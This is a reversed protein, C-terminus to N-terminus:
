PTYGDDTARVFIVTQPNKPVPFRTVDTLSLVSRLREKVQELTIGSKQTEYETLCTVGQSQTLAAADDRSADWATTSHPDLFPLTAIPIPHLCGVM